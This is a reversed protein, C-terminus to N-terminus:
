AAKLADHLADTIMDLFFASSRSHIEDLVDMRDGETRGLRNIDTDVMLCKEMEGRPNADLRNYVTGITIRARDLSNKFQIDSVSNFQDEEAYKGGLLGIYERNVIESWKRGELGLKSRQFVDVYRLGVRTYFLPNYTGEFAALATAAKKSFEEWNKYENVSFSFFGPTIFVAGGEKSAFLHGVLGPMQQPLAGNVAISIGGSMQSYFPYEAMIKDQFSSPPESGIRLINPFDFQCHVSELPPNLYQVREVM